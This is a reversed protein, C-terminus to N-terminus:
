RSWRPARRRGPWRPRPRASCPRISRRPSRAGRIRRSRPWPRSRARRQGSVVSVTAGPPGGAPARRGAGPRDPRGRGRPTRRASSASSSRRSRGSRASWGVSLGPTLASLATSSQFVTGPLPYIAARAPHLPSPERHLGARLLDSPDRAAAIASAAAAGPRGRGGARVEAHRANKIRAGEVGITVVQGQSTVPAGSRASHGRRPRALDDAPVAPRRRAAAARDHGAVLKVLWKGQILVLHLASKLTITGLGALTLHETVPASAASTGAHM